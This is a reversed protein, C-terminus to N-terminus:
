PAGAGTFAADVDEFVGEISVGVAGMILISVVSILVLILAYEALGQGKEDKRIQAALAFLRAYFENLMYSSGREGSHGPSTTIIINPRNPTASWEWEDGSQGARSTGANVSVGFPRTKKRRRSEKSEPTM